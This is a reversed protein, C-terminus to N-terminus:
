IANPLIFRFNLLALIRLPAMSSKIQIRNYKEGDESVRERRDAM